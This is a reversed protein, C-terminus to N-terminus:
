DETLPVSIQITTGEIDSSIRSIGGVSRTHERISMLGIGGRQMAEEPIGNGDDRITLHILGSATTLSLSFHSAGSHRLVNSICEQACRYLVVRISHGPEETLPDLQLTTACTEAIGSEAVLNRLAVVVSLNQWDPPHLRHSVARVQGLASEALRHIRAIALGVEAPITREASQRWVDLLELNIKIGALPQGAGAHLERAIRAREKEIEGVLSPGRVRGRAMESIIGSLRAHKGGIRALMDAWDSAGPFPLLCDETEVM